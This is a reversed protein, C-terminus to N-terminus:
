VREVVLRYDAVARAAEGSGGFLLELSWRGGSSLDTTDAESEDLLSGSGDYFRATATADTAEAGTNEIVADVGVLEDETGENSRVLAHEVVRLGDPTQVVAPTSTPSATPTDTSSPSEVTDTPEATDTPSESGGSGFGSCGALALLPTTLLATRASSLLARRRM